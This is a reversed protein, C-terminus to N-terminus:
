PTLVAEWEMESGCKTPSTAAIDSSQPITPNGGGLEPMPEEVLVATGVNAESFSGVTDGLVGTSLRQANRGLGEMRARSDEILWSGTSSRLDRREVGLVRDGRRFLLGMVLLKNWSGLVSCPRGLAKPGCSRQVGRPRAVDGVTTGDWWACM